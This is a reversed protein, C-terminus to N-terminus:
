DFLFATEKKKGVNMIDSLAKREQDTPIHIYQSKVPKLEALQEKLDDIQTQFDKTHAHEDMISFSKKKRIDDLEEPTGFYLARLSFDEKGAEQQFRSFAKELTMNESFHGDKYELM